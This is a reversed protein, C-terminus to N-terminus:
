QYFVDYKKHYFPSFILNMISDEFNNTKVKEIMEWSIFYMNKKSNTNYLKNSDIIEIIMEEEFSFEKQIIIKNESVNFKQELLSDVNFDEKRFDSLYSLFDHKINIKLRGNNIFLYATFSYSSKEKSVRGDYLETPEEIYYGDFRLM